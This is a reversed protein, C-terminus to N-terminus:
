FYFAYHISYQNPLSSASSMVILESCCFCKSFLALSFVYTVSLSTKEFNSRGFFRCIFNISILYIHNCYKHQHLRATLYRYILRVFLACSQIIMIRQKWTHLYWGPLRADNEYFGYHKANEAPVQRLFSEPVHGTRGNVQWFYGARMFAPICLFQCIYGILAYRVKLCYPATNCPCVM